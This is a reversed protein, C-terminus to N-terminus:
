KRREKFWEVTRRLGEKFNVGPTYGLVKKALRIDAQTHRIDGLRSPRQELDLHSGTYSEILKRVERIEIRTGSGINIIKGKLAQKSSMAKLNAVVVDDVYCFDRSQKGDGEIFPKKKKPFYLAELWASIVTSYASDGYQGPGFVNFYRFCVTDM